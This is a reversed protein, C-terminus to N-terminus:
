LFRRLICARYRCKRAKRARSMSTSKLTSIVSEKLRRSGDWYVHLLNQARRTGADQVSEAVAVVRGKYEDWKIGADRADAYAKSASQKAYDALSSLGDKSGEVRVTQTNEYAKSVREKVSETVSGLKTKYVDFSNQDLSSPGHSTYGADSPPNRSM